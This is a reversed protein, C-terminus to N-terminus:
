HRLFLEAYFLADEWLSPDYGEPCSRIRTGEEAALPWSDYAPGGLLGELRYQEFVPGPAYFDPRECTIAWEDNVLLTLRGKIRTGNEDDSSRAELVVRYSRILSTLALDFDIKGANTEARECAKDFLRYADEFSEQPRWESHVVTEMHANCSEQVGPPLVPRATTRALTVFIRWGLSVADGRTLDVPKFNLLLNRNPGCRLWLDTFLGRSNADRLLKFMDEYGPVGMLGDALRTAELDRQKRVRDQVDRLKEVRSLREAIGRTRIEVEHAAAETVQTSLLEATAKSTARRVDRVLRPELFMVFGALLAGAGVSVMVDPWRGEGWGALALVELVIGVSVM